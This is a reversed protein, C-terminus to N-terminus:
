RIEPHAVVYQRVADKVAFSRSFALLVIRAVSSASGAVPDFSLGEARLKGQIETREDKSVSAAVTFTRDGM